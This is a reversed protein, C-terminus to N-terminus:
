GQLAELQNISRRILLLCLCCFVGFSCDIFRWYFPIGRVPGAILALPIVGACSIFGWTIFWRNRVPDLYPGIFAVAIVLHAFALWDTGYALFPYRANTDTLAAYVRLFWANIAPAHQALHFHAALRVTFALEHQLPFATVGSFFLGIIVVALWLRISRLLQIKTAILAPTPAPQRHAINGHMAAPRPAPTNDPSDPPQQAIFERVSEATLGRETLIQAALNSKEGLIGLLLHHTGIYHHSLNDSEEAAYALACKCSNSLPIDITASTAKNATSRAEIEKRLTDAGGPVKIVLNTLSADERLLGLLLHQPEICPSGAQNAEYRSFFISRRAKETYREFMRRGEPALNLTPLQGLYPEREVPYVRNLCGAM